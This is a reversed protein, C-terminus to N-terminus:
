SFLCLVFIIDPNFNKYFDTEIFEKDSKIKGDAIMLMKAEGARGIFADKNKTFLLVAWWAFAILM